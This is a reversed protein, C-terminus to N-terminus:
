VLKSVRTIKEYNKWLLSMIIKQKKKMIKMIFEHLKKM